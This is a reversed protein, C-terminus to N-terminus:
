SEVAAAMSQGNQLNDKQQASELGVWGRGDEQVEVAKSKGTKHEVPAAKVRVERKWIPVKRKTEELLWEAVEFARRRHPSSVAVLISAEGVEVPGLRNILAIRIISDSSPPESELEKSKRRRISGGSSGGVSTGASTHGTTHTHTSSNGQLSMNSLASELESDM